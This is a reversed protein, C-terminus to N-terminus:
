PYPHPAPNDGSAATIGRYGLKQPVNWLRIGGLARYAHGMFLPHLGPIIARVVTLGLSKIDSTTIDAVFLRLNMARVREVLIELDRLPNGSAVNELHRFDIRKQSAYLFEALHANEQECYFRIHDDQHSVSRYDSNAQVWPMTNKLHRAFQRTHALEELSKRIARDPDLDTSAAVVLAPASINTDRLVSFITPVGIDM